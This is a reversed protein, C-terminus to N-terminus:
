TGDKRAKFIQTANGSRLHAMSCRLLLYVNRNLICYKGAVGRTALSIWSEKKDIDSRPVLYFGMVDIEVGASRIGEAYLSNYRNAAKSFYSAPLDKIVKYHNTWLM